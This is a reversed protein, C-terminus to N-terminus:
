FPCRESPLQDFAEVGLDVDVGLSRPRNLDMSPDVVKPFASRLRHRPGLGATPDV